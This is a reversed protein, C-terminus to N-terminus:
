QPSVRVRGAPETHGARRKGAGPSRGPVTVAALPSKGATAREQGTRGQGVHNASLATPSPRGSTRATTTRGRVRRQFEEVAAEADVLQRRLDTLRDTDATRQQEAAALEATLVDLQEQLQQHREQAARRRARQEALAATAQRHEEATQAVMGEQQQIEQELRKVRLQRAALDQELQFAQGRLERLESRRSILGGSAHSPGVAVTGDSEVLEGALTVFRLSAAHTRHLVMAQSLNEVFWTHGLLRQVLRACSADATVFRDARGIVGHEDGLDTQPSHRAPPRGRGDRIFIVRGAFASSEHPLHEILRGGEVVVLQAQEGLAVDILPAYTVSAQLLDAVVGRVTAYPSAPSRQARALVDKVGRSLGELRDELEQLVAARETVATHRAQM